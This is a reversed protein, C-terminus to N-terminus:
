SGRKKQELVHRYVAVTQEACRDWSFTAARELGLRALEQRRGDDDLLARMSATVQERSPDILVGADGVVEPLSSRNAAIVPVGCAMAELATLGFGEYMSPTVYLAAHQMLIVKDEESIRGTLVVRDQIGRDAIIPEIPPFVTPNGTHPAGGIVLTLPGPRDAVLDAFAEVLMPLNKRVDFGGINFIYPQKVGLAHLRASGSSEAPRYQDGVAEPTVIIREAQIGLVSEVDLAAHQSPTIVAAAHRIRARSVALNVQMARSQRYEPLVYPIVDHVTAVVPVPSGIPVAMLPVHLLDIEEGRAALGSRLTEWTFRDAREGLRSILAKAPPNIPVIEVDSRRRLAEGLGSLYAGIGTTPRTAFSSELGIRM